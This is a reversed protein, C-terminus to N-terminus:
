GAEMEEEAFSPSFFEVQRAPSTDTLAPLICFHWARPLCVPPACTRGVQVTGAGRQMKQEEWLDGPVGDNHCQVNRLFSGNLSQEVRRVCGSM